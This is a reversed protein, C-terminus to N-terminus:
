AADASETESQMPANEELYWVGNVRVYHNGNLDEATNEGTWEAWIYQAEKYTVKLEGTLVGEVKIFESEFVGNKYSNKYGTEPLSAGGNSADLLVFQHGTISYVKANTEGTRHARLIIRLPLPTEAENGTLVNTVVKVLSQKVEPTDFFLINYKEEEMNDAQADRFLYLSVDIPSEGAAIM